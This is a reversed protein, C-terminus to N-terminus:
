KSVATRQSHENLAADLTKGKYQGLRQRLGQQRSPDSVQSAMRDIFADDIVTNRAAKVSGSPNRQRAQEYLQAKEPTDPGFWEGNRKAAVLVQEGKANMVYLEYDTIRPDNKVGLFGKGDGEILPARNERIGEFGDAVPQFPM